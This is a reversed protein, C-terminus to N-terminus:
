DLSHLCRFEDGELSAGPDQRHWDGEWWVREVQRFGVGGDGRGLTPEWVQAEAKASTLARDWNGGDEVLLPPPVLLEM